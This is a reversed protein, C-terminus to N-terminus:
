AQLVGVVVLAITAIVLRRQIKINERFQNADADNQDTSKHRSFPMEDTPVHQGKHANNAVGSQETSSAETVGRNHPVQQGAAQDSFALIGCQTLSVLAILAPLKM